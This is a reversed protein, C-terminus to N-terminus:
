REEALLRRFATPTHPARVADADGALRALARVYIRARRTDEDRAALLGELRRAAALAEVFRGDRSAEDVLTQTVEVSEPRGRLAAFAEEAAGLTLLARAWAVVAGDDALARAPVRLLMQVAEDRHNRGALTRAYGLQAGLLGPDIEVARLYMGEAQLTHGAREAEVGQGYWRLAVDHALANMGTDLPAAQAGATRAALLTLAFIPALARRM